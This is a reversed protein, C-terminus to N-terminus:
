PAEAVVGESWFNNNGLFCVFVLLFSTFCMSVGVVYFDVKEFSHLRQPGMRRTGFLKSKLLFCIELFYGVFM